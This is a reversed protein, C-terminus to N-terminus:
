DIARRIEEVLNRYFTYRDDLRTEKLTHWLHRFLNERLWGDNDNYQEYEIMISLSELWLDRVLKKYLSDDMTIDNPNRSGWEFIRAIYYHHALIVDVAADRYGEGRKYSPRTNMLDRRAFDLQNKHYVPDTLRDVRPPTGNYSYGWDNNRRVRRIDGFWQPYHERNPRPYRELNAPRNEVIGLAFDGSTAFRASGAFAARTADTRANAGSSYSDLIKRSLARDSPSEANANDLAALNGLRAIVSLSM